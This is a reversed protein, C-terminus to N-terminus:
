VEHRFGHIDVGVGDRLMIAGSGSVVTGIRAVPVGTDTMCAEAGDFSAPLTCLIEYDEGGRAGMVAPDDGHRIAVLPVAPCLPIRAIDIEIRVASAAALHLADGAIGDSVDIMATAGQEALWRATALRPLPNVFFERITPEPEKGSEWDRIAARAGGVWGTVWVGDGVSAGRRSMPRVAHGLVTVAVSWVPGSSLDGGIIKTGAALAAQGAGAMLAIVDDHSVDHPVTLAITVGAPLAGAAALDSLAASTARWGIEVPRIWARKFHVNEVSVDTSVVLMGEGTPVPATDDGLPGAAEGLAEAIARVRDFEAGSGLPITVTDGNM